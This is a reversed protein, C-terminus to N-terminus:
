VKRRLSEAQHTVHQMAKFLEELSQERSMAAFRRGDLPKGAVVALSAAGAPLFLPALRPYHRWRPLAQYAGAIGIPIIPAQSRKLILHIGPKLSVMAGSASREGEPFVLVARGRRLQEVVTKIGEKAVGDQDIPVANLSEILWRFLRHRFLSKRALYCLHRRTVLGVLMPDLYSQHNAILLAPGARPVNSRGETRLSFGLTFVSMTVLHCLEYWFYSSWSEGPERLSSRTTPPPRSTGPDSFTM